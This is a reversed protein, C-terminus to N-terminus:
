SGHAAGEDRLALWEERLIGYMVVDKYEGFRRLHHRLVGEKRMGVKQQVRGSAENEAFHGAFIRELGRAEFGYDLMARAAETCYGKNWFPVGVWFGLDGKNDPKFELGITGMLQGSERLTIAFVAADDSQWWGRVLQLFERADELTYPHPLRYTTAAIERAGALEAIAPADTDLPRRLLLRDTTLEVRDTM